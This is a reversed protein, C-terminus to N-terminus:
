CRRPGPGACASRRTPSRTTPASAATCRRVPRCASAAPTGCSTTTPCCGPRRRASRRARARDLRRHGARLAAADWPATLFDFNFAQHLEDPRVYRALREPPSVWAEAVAIRDGDYADLVRRWERYVEHVGDQDWYPPRRGQADAGQLLEQEADWDPLGEAKVLGHAVDVRFGDVGRDLWFRLM